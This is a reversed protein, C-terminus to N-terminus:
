TGGQFQGLGGVNLADSVGFTVGIVFSYNTTNLNVSTLNTLTLSGSVGNCRGGKAKASPAARALIRALVCAAHAEGAEDGFAQSYLAVANAHLKQLAAEVDDDFMRRAYANPRRGEGALKLIAYSAMPGRPKPDTM